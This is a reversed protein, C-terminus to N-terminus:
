SATTAGQGEFYQVRYGRQELRGLVEAPRRHDPILFQSSAADNRAEARRAYPSVDPSGPSVSGIIPLVREQFEATERTTLIIPFQPFMLALTAIVRVYTDDDVKSRTDSGLAPRLRPLSMNVRAGRAALHEIHSVLVALDTGPESLGVLFAPNVDLHGADLWHDFSRLRQDFDSKPVEATKRGMFREYARRDYTEQFVCMTVREDTRVWDGLVDIEAPTMSGINYFVKEFGMDLATRIAWGIYFANALRTFSGEYEGTLFGCARVKEDHYLISLQDEILRKGSFKRVLKANGGRMGCMLCESDCHNTVFIPVFTERNNGKAVQCREEAAAFIRDTSVSADEFIALAVSAKSGNWSGELYNTLPDVAPARGLEYEGRIEQAQRMTFGDAM